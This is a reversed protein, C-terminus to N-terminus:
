MVSSFLEGEGLRKLVGREKELSVHSQATHQPISVQGGRLDKFRKGKCHPHNQIGRTQPYPCSCQYVWLIM